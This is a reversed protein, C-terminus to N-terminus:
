SAWRWPGLDPPHKKLIGGGGRTRFQWHFLRPFLRDKTGGGPSNPPSFNSHFRCLGRGRDAGSLKLGLDPLTFAFSTKLYGRSSLYPATGLGRPSTPDKPFERLRIRDPSCQRRHM